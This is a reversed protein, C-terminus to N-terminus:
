MTSLALSGEATEKILVAIGIMLAGGENGLQRGFARDGFAM